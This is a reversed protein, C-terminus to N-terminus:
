LIIKEEELKQEASMAFQLSGSAVGSDTLLGANNNRVSAYSGGCAMTEEAWSPRDPEQRFFPPSMRSNWVIFPSSTQPSRPNLALASYIFMKWWRKRWTLRLPWPSGNCHKLLKLNCKFFTDSFECPRILVSPLRGHNNPGRTAWWLFTPPSLFASARNQRIDQESLSETWPRGIKRGFCLFHRSAQIEFKEVM